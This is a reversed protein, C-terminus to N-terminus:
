VLITKGEKVALWRSSPSFALSDMFGAEGPLKLDLLLQGSQRSYINIRYDSDYAALFNNDPSLLWRWRGGVDKLPLLFQHSAKHQGSVLDYAFLEYKQLPGDAGHEETLPLM